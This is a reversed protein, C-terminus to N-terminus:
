TRGGIYCIFIKALRQIRTRVTAESIGLEEAIKTYPMRGDEQLFCIIQSDTKDIMLSLTGIGGKEKIM